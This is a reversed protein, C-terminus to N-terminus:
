KVPQWKKECLIYPLTWVLLELITIGEKNTITQKFNTIDKQSVRYM